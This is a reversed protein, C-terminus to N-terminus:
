LMQVNEAKVAFHMATDGFSNAFTLPHAPSELLKIVNCYGLRVSQFFCEQPNRITSELMGKSKLFTQMQSKDPLPPHISELEEVSKDFYDVALQNRLEYSPCIVLM